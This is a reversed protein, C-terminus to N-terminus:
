AKPEWDEIEILEVEADEFMQLTLENFFSTNLKTRRGTPCVVRKIGSQIIPGACDPCPLGVNCYLTAGTLDAASSVIANVEAHVVVPYKYERDEYWEPRDKVGRPFGNYGMTLIQRTDTEVVVCGVKTSPDKSWSAITDAMDLFRKHWKARRMLEHRLKKRLEQSM